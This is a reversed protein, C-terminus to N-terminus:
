NIEDKIEKLKESIIAADSLDIWDGPKLKNFKIFDPSLVLVLSDGWNKIQTKM